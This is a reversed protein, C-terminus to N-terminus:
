KAPSICREWSHRALTLPLADAGGAFLLPGPTAEEELASAVALGSFHHHQLQVWPPFVPSEWAWGHLQSGSVVVALAEM